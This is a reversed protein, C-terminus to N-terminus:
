SELDRAKQRRSELADLADKVRQSEGRPVVLVSDGTAIVILDQVGITVIAPGDSRVLCGQSDLALVDGGLVNGDPDPIGLAYLSDWSGVDSWGMDVPAVAVRDSREMVAIDVPMSPSNAFSEPDPLLRTGDRRGRDISSRAAGLIEPEHEALAAVFADARFLFIGANWDHGGEALWAEALNRKPKEAFAEARFVGEGLLAGRRIYGYGTEPRNPAIGFTVLWDDAAFPLARDIAARFADSDAILHDSPMVLLVDSQDCALAALAIAAATNRGFPEVIMLSPSAGVEALQAEVADAHDTGAVVIPVQFRSLDGVRRVTQQLLSEGGAPAMLQKPRGARSLPWLRKGAGGSLIVPLIRRDSGSDNM